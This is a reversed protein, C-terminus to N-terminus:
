ASNYEQAQIVFLLCYLLLINMGTKVSMAVLENKVVCILM